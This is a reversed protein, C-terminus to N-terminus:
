TRKKKHFGGTFGRLHQTNILSLLEYFKSSNKNINYALFSAQKLM